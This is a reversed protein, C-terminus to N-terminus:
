SEARGGARLTPHTLRRSVTSINRGPRHPTALSSCGPLRTPFIPPVTDPNSQVGFAVLLHCQSVTVTRAGVPKSQSRTRSPEVAAQSSEARSFKSPASVVSRLSHAIPPQTSCVIRQISLLTGRRFPWNIIQSVTNTSRLWDCCACCPLSRQSGKKGHTHGKASEDHKRSIAIM